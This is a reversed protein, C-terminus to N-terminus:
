TSVYKGHRESTQGGSSHQDRSRDAQGHSIPRRGSAVPGTSHCRLITGLRRRRVSGPRQTVHSM